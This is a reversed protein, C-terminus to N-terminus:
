FHSVHFTFLHLLEFTAGFAEAGLQELSIPGCFALFLFALVVLVQLIILVVPVAVRLIARIPQVSGLEFVYTCPQKQSVSLLFHVSLQLGGFGAAVATAPATAPNHGPFPAM